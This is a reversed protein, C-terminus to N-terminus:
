PTFPAHTPFDSIKKNLSNDLLAQMGTFTCPYVFDNLHNIADSLHMLHAPTVESSKKSQVAKVLAEMLGLDPTVLYTSDYADFGLGAGSFAMGTAGVAEASSSAFGMGAKVLGGIINTQKKAHERHAKALSIRRFFDSCLSKSYAQGEKWFKFNAEPNEVVANLSTTKFFPFEEDDVVTYGGGELAYRYSLWYRQKSSSIMSGKAFLTEGKISPDEVLFPTQYKSFLSCSQLSLIVLISTIVKMYSEM